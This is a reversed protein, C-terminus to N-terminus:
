LRPRWVRATKDDSGSVVYIGDTATYGIDICLVPETHGTLTQLCEGSRGDWLRLERSVACTIIMPSGKLWRLEIVGAPHVCTHRLTFSGLDWVSLKGDMACSAALPAADCFGANEVSADHNPLSALLKGSEAHALKLDGMDTGFLFVPQETHAALCSVARPEHANPGAHLCHDVTGTRPNWVRVTGDESATLVGRGANVFCGYSVSASHASFIQMVSGEPLKWMWATADESGALLVQGRTHWCVWNIGQTPGDLAVVLAGTAANWVRVAGDLGATALLSGDASFGVSSVTDAHGELRALPAPQGVHWLHAVDDGGGTVLIEPKAANVAVAFVPEKHVTLQLVSHDEAPPEMPVTAPSADEMAESAISSADDLVSDDDSTDAPPVDNPGLVYDFDPRIHLDDVTNVENPIAEADSAVPQQLLPNPPFPGDAMTSSSPLQPQPPVAMSGDSVDVSTSPQDSSSMTNPLRTSPTHTHTAVRRDKEGEREGGRRSGRTHPHSHTHRHPNNYRSVNNLDLTDLSNGGHHWGRCESLSRSSCSLGTALICVTVCTPRALMSRLSLM